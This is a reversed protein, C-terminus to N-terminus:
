HLSNEPRLNQSGLHRYTAALEHGLARPRHRDARPYIAIPLGPLKAVNLPLRRQRRHSATASSQLGQDREAPLLSRRARASFRQHRHHGQPGNRSSM